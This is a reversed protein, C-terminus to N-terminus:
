SMFVYHERNREPDRAGIQDNPTGLDLMVQGALVELDDSYRRSLDEAHEAPDTPPHEM